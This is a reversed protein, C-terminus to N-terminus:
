EFAQLSVVSAEAQSFNVAVHTLARPTGPGWTNWGPSFFYDTLVPGSSTERVNDILFGDLRRLFEAVATGESVGNELSWCGLWKVERSRERSRLCVWKKGDGEAGDIVDAILGVASPMLVSIVHIM